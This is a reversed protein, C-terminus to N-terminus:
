TVRLSVWWPWGPLYSGPKRTNRLGLIEREVGTKMMLHFFSFFAISFAIVQHFALAFSPSALPLLEHVASVSRLRLVPVNTYNFPACRLPRLM